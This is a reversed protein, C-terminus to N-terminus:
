RAHEIQELVVPQQGQLRQQDQEDQHVPEVPEAEGQHPGPHAYAVLPGPERGHRPDAHAEVHHHYKGHKPHYSHGPSTKLHYSIIASRSSTRWGDGDWRRRPPVVAQIKCTTEPTSSTTSSPRCM